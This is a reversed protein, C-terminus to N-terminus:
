YDVLALNLAQQKNIESHLTGPFYFGVDLKGDKYNPKRGIVTEGSVSLIILSSLLSQSNFPITSTSEGISPTADFHGVILDL